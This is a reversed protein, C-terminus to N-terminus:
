IYAVKTTSLDHSSNFQYAKIKIKKTTLKDEKTGERGGNELLRKYSCRAVSDM